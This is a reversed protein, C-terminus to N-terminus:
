VLQEIQFTTNWTAFFPNSFQQDATSLGWVSTRELNNTDDPLPCAIIPLSKGNIVAVKLPGSFIEDGIGTGYIGEQRLFDVGFNLVRVHPRQTIFTSGFPVRDINSLDKVTISWDYSMNIPAQWAECAGMYGVQTLGASSINVSVSSATVPTPLVFIRPRGLGTYEHSDYIGNTDTAWSNVTGSNYSGASVSMTGGPDTVLDQFHIIDVQRSGAFNLSFSVSGGAISVVQPRPILINSGNDTTTWSGGSIAAGAEQGWDFRSVIVYRGVM